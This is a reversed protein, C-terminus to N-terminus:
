TQQMEAPQFRNHNGVRLRELQHVEPIPKQNKKRECAHSVYYHLSFSMELPLAIESPTSPVQASIKGSLSPTLDVIGLPLTGIFEQCPPNLPLEDM